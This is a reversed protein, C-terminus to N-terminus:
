TDIAIATATATAKGAYTTAMAEPNALTPAQMGTFTINGTPFAGQSNKGIAPVYGPAATGGSGGCAALLSAGLSTGALPLMPATSLAKLLSRRSTVLNSESM